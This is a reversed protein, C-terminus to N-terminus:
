QPEMALIPQSTVRQWTEESHSEFQHSMSDAVHGHNPMPSITCQNTKEFKNKQKQSHETKM